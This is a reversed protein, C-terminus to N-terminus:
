SLRRLLPIVKMYYAIFWLCASTLIFCIGIGVRYKLTIMDINAATKNSWKAVAVLAKPFLILMIGSIFSVLGAFILFSM